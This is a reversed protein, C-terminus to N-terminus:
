VGSDDLDIGKGFEDPDDDLDDGDDDNDDDPFVEEEEEEFDDDGDKGDDDDDHDYWEEGNAAEFSAIVECAREQLAEPVLVGISHPAANSGPGVWASIRVDDLVTCYKRAQDRDLAYLIASLDGDPTRAVDRPKGQTWETPEATTTTPELTHKM